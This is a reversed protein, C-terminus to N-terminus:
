PEEEVMWSTAGKVFSCTAMSLPPPPLQPASYPLRRSWILVISTATVTAAAAFHPPIKGVAPCCSPEFHLTSGIRRYINVKVVGLNISKERGLPYWWRRRRRWLCPWDHSEFQTQNALPCNRWTNNTNWSPYFHNTTTFGLHMHSLSLPVVHLTARPM